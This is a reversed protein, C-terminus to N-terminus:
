RTRISFERVVAGSEVRFRNVQGSEAGMRISLSWYGPFITEESRADIFTGSGELVTVKPVERISAGIADTILANL